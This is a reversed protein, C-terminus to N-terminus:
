KKSHRDEFPNECNTDEFPKECNTDEFPNECNTYIENASKLAERIGAKKFGKIISEKQQKLYHCIEDM